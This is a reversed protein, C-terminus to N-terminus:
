LKVMGQRDWESGWALQAHVEVFDLDFGVGQWASIMRERAMMTIAEDTAAHTQWEIQWGSDGSPVLRLTRYACPYVSLAPCALHRRRGLLDAKTQHHHGTLAVRVQPYRDLLALMDSGNDCVFNRWNPESDIPALSHFPHHVALIVLKDTHAALERELWDIQATDIIGGWDEDRISDLGILQIGPKVMVSWYGAQAEPAAPRAQFQPNFRRAFERRTLGEIETSNRRDHNGPIIYTPKGLARIAQQFLAVNAETPTNFLDGTLLVFDLDDQQNLDAIIATLFDAAHGSLIEEYDGLSSIHIDSIQAFHLVSNLAM